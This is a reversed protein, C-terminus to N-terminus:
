TKKGGAKVLNEILARRMGTVRSIRDLREEGYALNIVILDLDLIKLLARKQALRDGDSARDILETGATRIFSMVGEVFEPPLGIRVHAQGIRLRRELYAEGYEGDFLELMWQRHTAKLADIRGEIRRATDPNDGLLVYFDDTIAAGHAEFLPRLSRLAAADAEDFRLFDKMTQYTTASTM